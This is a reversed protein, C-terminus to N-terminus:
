SETGPGSGPVSNQNSSGVFNPTPLDFSPTGPCIYGSIFPWHNFQFKKKQSELHRFQFKKKSKDSTVELGILIRWLFGEGRLTRLSLMAFQWPKSELTLFAMLLGRTGNNSPWQKMRFRTIESLWWGIIHVESREAQLIEVAAFVQAAFAGRVGLHDPLPRRCPVTVLGESINMYTLDDSFRSWEVTPRLYQRAYRHSMAILIRKRSM